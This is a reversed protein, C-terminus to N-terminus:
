SYETYLFYHSHAGVVVDVHPVSRAVEKDKVYGSHGLAIIIDVGDDHLKTVEEKLAEVEDMIVLEKPPNSSYITFPTVYGVIGVRRSGVNLVTSRTYLGTLEPVQSTDINTVVVPCTQNALFPLLGELRDDFEHNGLTMASFNLRNNFKSILSWKFQTYWVTGQYFDGGNLWLSNEEVDRLDKVATFLRALGGYCKGKAKDKERCKASYKNTEEMRAHIDNVHLLSLEWSAVMSLHLLTILSRM